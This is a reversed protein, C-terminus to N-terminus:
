WDGEINKDSYEKRTKWKEVMRQLYLLAIDRAVETNTKDINFCNKVKKEDLDSSYLLDILKSYDDNIMQAIKYAILNILNEFAEEHNLVKLNTWKKLVGFDRKSTETLFNIEDISM